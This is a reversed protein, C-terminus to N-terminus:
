SEHQAAGKKLLYSLRLERVMRHIGSEPVGLLRAAAKYDGHARKLAAEFILSKFDRMLTRYSPSEGPESPLGGSAKSLDRPLDDPLIWDHSGLVVARLIAQELERVNGPWRHGELMRAAEDSIGRVPRGFKVSFKRLFHQALILIDEPRERLPPIQVSVAKLRYYLDERFERMEVATPLDRNTAAILRVDVFISRMAGLREITRDQIVRLLKAQFALGVEGIEDLFLTGGAAQEFKGKRMAIAGTFAGREHGFLESEALSEAIAACNFAVFPGTSRRSNSHLARAVLEKGTGTEGEILVTADTPGAKAIFELIEALAPSQGIMEYQINM